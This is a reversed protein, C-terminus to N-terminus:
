ERVRLTWLSKDSANRFALYTGNEDMMMDEVDLAIHTDTSFFRNATGLGAEVKWFVDNTHLAGQFRKALYEEGPAENPVACYAILGVGPAWVCKDATTEIPLKIPDEAGTQVFLEIAGNQTTSYLYANSTDHHNVMLGPKNAVLTRVSGNAGILYAYGVINDTPKQTLIIRGDSLAQANWQTLNSTYINKPNMGKWSSGVVAAGGDPKPTIFIIGKGSSQHPAVGFGVINEALYNGDLVNPTSTATLTTSTAILAAFSTVTGNDTTSRLIVDGSRSFYAERVKPVLTNTVRVITSQEPDAKIVNGTAREAFFVANTDFAFGFGAIPSKSVQWLRPSRKGVEREGTATVTDSVINQYTSGVDGTFSMSESGRGQDAIQTETVKAKIFFYWGIFAGIMAVIVAILVFQIISRSM